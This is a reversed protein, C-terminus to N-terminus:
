DKVALTENRKSRERIESGRIVKKRLERIERFKAM